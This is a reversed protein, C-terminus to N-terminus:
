GPPRSTATSEPCFAERPSGTHVEEPLRVTVADAFLGAQETRLAVETVFSGARASLTECGGMALALTVEVSDGAGIRVRDEGDPGTLGVLAFLRPDPQDQVLGLVTVPLRGDNVLRFTYRLTGGDAYRIQRVARDAITFTTTAETGTVSTPGSTALTPTSRAVAVGGVGVLLAALALLLIARRAM